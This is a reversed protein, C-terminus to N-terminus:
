PRDERARGADDLRPIGDYGVVVGAVAERSVLMARTRVLPVFGAPQGSGRYADLRDRQHAADPLGREVLFVCGGDRGRAARTALQEAPVATVAIFLGDRSRLSAIREALRAADPDGLPCVVAGPAAPGAPPPPASAGEPETREGETGEDVPDLLVSDAPRAVSPLVDEALERRLAPLSGTAPPAGTPDRFVYLRTWPLPTLRAGTNRALQELATRDRSVLIDIDAVFADRPDRAPTVAFRVAPNTRAKEGRREGAILLRGSEVRETVAVGRTGHPWRALGPKAVVFSPGALLAPLAPDPADLRITLRRGWPEMRRLRLREWLAYRAPDGLSARRAGRWASIVDEALVEGGDTFTADDRLSFIWTTGGDPTNWDKALAPVPEGRCDLDTLGEYFHRFVIAESDNVPARLHAPDVDHLLAFTLPVDREEAEGPLAPCWGAPPPLGPGGCGSALALLLAVAFPSRRCSSPLSMAKVKGGARRDRL